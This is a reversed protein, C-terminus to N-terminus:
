RYTQLRIKSSQKHPKSRDCRRLESTNANRLQTKPWKALQKRQSNNVTKITLLNVSAQWKIGSGKAATKIILKFQLQINATKQIFNKWRQYKASDQSNSVM